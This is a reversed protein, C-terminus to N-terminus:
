KVLWLNSNNGKNLLMCIYIYIYIYIYLLSTVSLQYQLGQENIYKRSPLDELLKINRIVLLSHSTWLGLTEIVLPQLIGGTAKM